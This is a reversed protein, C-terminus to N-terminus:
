KSLKALTGFRSRHLIVAALAVHVRNQAGLGTGRQISARTARQAHYMAQQTAFSQDYQCKSNACTSGILGGGSYLAVAETSGQPFIHVEISTTCAHM